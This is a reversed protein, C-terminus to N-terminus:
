LYDLTLQLPGYQVRSTTLKEHITFLKDDIGGTAEAPLQRTPRPCHTAQFAAEGVGCRNRM